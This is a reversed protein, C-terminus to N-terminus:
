GCQFGINKSQSISRNADRMMIPIPFSIATEPTVIMEAGSQALKEYGKTYNDVAIEWGRPKVSLSNPFNGQIIGARISQGNGRAMRDGQMEWAGYVAMASLLSIAAIAYNKREKWGKQLLIEAFLGNIAVIAATM